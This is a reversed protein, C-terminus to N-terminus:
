RAVTDIMEQLGVAAEELDGDRLAERIALLAEYESTAILDPWNSAITTMM